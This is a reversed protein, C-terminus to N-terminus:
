FSYGLGIGAQIGGLDAKIKQPKVECYSYNISADILFGGAIRFYCGIEGIIGIGTGDALGIPNKEKYVYVVPGFGIYPNIGNKQIRLKIGGGLPILTMQTEEKSFPLNGKKSYYNGILWLDIFRWLKINIEGSIMIGEGYLDKFSQESPSFYNAGVKFYNNRIKTPEAKEEQCLLGSVFFSLLIVLLIMRIMNLYKIM